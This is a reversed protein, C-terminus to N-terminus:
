QAKQTHSFIASCFFLVDVTIVLVRIIDACHKVTGSPRPSRRNIERQLNYLLIRECVSSSAYGLLYYLPLREYYRTSAHGVSRIGTM